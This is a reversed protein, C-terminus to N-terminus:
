RYGASRGSVGAARRRADAFRRPRRALIRGTVACIRSPLAVALAILSSRRSRTLRSTAAPTRGPSPVTSTPSSGPLTWYTAPLCRSQACTPMVDCWTCSGASTLGDASRARITASFASGAHVPKMTWSGSGSVRSACSNRSSTSGSLSASPSCGVFRPRSTRPNSPGSGHVGRPMTSSSRRCPMSVRLARTQTTPRPTVTPRGSPRSSVRRSSFAVTVSHWVPVTSRAASVRRASMTTAAAPTGPRTVASMTRAPATTTSTPM